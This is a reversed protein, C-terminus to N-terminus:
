FHFDINCLCIWYSGEQPMENDHFNVAPKVKLDKKSVIALKIWSKIVNRFSQKGKILLSM